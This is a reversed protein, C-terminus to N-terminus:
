FVTNMLAAVVGAVAVAGLRRAGMAAAATAGDPVQVLVWGASQTVVATAPAATGTPLLRLSSSCSALAGVSAFACAEALELTQPAASTHGASLNPRLALQVRVADTAGEVVTAFPPSPTSSHTTTTAPATTFPDSSTTTPAGLAIAWTTRGAASDVGLISATLPVNFALTLGPVFLSLACRRGLVLTFRVGVSAALAAEHKPSLATRDGSPPLLPPTSPRSPWTCIAGTPPPERHTKSRSRAFQKRLTEPLHDHTSNAATATSGM